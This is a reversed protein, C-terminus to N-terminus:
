FVAFYFSVFLEYNKPSVKEWFKTEKVFLTFHAINQIYDRFGAKDYILVLCPLANSKLTHIHFFANSQTEACLIKFGLIYFNVTTM